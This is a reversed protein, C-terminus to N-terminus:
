GRRVTVFRELGALDREVGVAAEPFAARCLAAMAAAQAPDIEAALVGPTHLM